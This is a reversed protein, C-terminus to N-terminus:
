KSVGEVFRHCIKERGPEFICVLVYDSGAYRFKTETLQGIVAKTDALFRDVDEESREIGMDRLLVIQHLTTADSQAAEGVTAGPYVTKIYERVSQEEPTGKPSSFAVAAIGAGAIIVAAIAIFIFKRM